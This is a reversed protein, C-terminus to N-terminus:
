YRLIGHKRIVTMFADVKEDLSGELVVRNRKHSLSEYNVVMTPSGKIGYDDASGGIEDMTLVQIDKEFALNVAALGPHRHTNTQRNVALLVPLEVEIKQYEHGYLREVHVCKGAVEISHIRTLLPMDLFESLQYGVSGTNGDISEVGTVIIDFTGTKGIALSLIRGTVLTDSGAFAPDSVLVARDAGMAMAQILVERAAPPAMTFVTVTGRFREKLDLAAEVAHLDDPNMMTGAGERVLTGDAPDIRVKGTDPVQKVCVAINLM